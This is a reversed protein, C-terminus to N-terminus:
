NTASLQLQSIPYYFDSILVIESRANVPRGAEVLNKAGFTNM